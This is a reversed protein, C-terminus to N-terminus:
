YQMVCRSLNVKFEVLLYAMLHVTKMCVNSDVLTVLYNPENVVSFEMINSFRHTAIM